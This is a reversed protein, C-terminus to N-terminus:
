SIRTAVNAALGKYVFKNHGIAKKEIVGATVLEKLKNYFSSISLDINKSKMTLWVTEADTYDDFFGFNEVILDSFQHHQKKRKTLTFQFSQFPYQTPRYM